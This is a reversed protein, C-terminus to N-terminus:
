ISDHIYAQGICADQKISVATPYPNLVRVKQTVKDKTDVLSPVVILPYKDTFHEIAEILFEKQKAFGDEERRDVFVDIVAESNGPIIFDDAARLNRVTDENPGIRICPISVGNLKIVGKSLLIDAPGDNWSVALLLSWFVVSVVVPTGCSSVEIGGGGGSGIIILIPCWGKGYPQNLSCEEINWDM